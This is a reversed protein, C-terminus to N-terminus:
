CGVVRRHEEHFPVGLRGSRNLVCAPILGLVCVYVDLCSVYICVRRTNKEFGNLVCGGATWQSGSSGAYGGATLEFIHALIIVLDFADNSGRGNM